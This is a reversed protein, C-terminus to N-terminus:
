RLFLLLLQGGNFLSHSAMSALASRRTLYMAGWIAGLTATIIMADYGQIYHGSGFALSTILLGMLPQGLDDRFRHLLFARQLEERVGGGVIVVFLFPWISTQNGALGELPNDAVNHLLPIFSRITVTMLIVVIIVLPFSLVGSALEPIWPRGGFFVDTPREQRRRLFLVILGLLVVTDILSLAFVFGGNFQGGANTPQIGAAILGSGIALQTPYGSCVLIEFWTPWTPRRQQLPPADLVPPITTTSADTDAM